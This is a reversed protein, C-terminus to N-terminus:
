QEWAGPPDVRPHSERTGWLGIESRFSQVVQAVPGEIVHRIVARDSTPADLWGILTEFLPDPELENWRTACARRDTSWTADRM